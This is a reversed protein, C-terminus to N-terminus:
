ESATQCSICLPTDPRVKLRAFGISEGCNECYGFEGQELAKMALQVRALQQRDQQRSAKAMEQQQIADVRSVRGVAQQDLDVPQTLDLSEQLQQKLKGLLLHLDDRLEELQLETLEDM